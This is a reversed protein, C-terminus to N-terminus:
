GMLMQLYTDIKTDSLKFWKKMREMSYAQGYNNGISGVSKWVGIPDIM